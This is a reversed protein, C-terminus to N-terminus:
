IKMNDITKTLEEYFSNLNKILLNFKKHSSTEELIKKIENIENPLIKDVFFDSLKIQDETLSSEDEINSKIAGYTELIEEGFPIKTARINDFEYDYIFRIEKIFNSMLFSKKYLMSKMLTKNLNIEDFDIQIFEYYKFDNLIKSIYEIYNKKLM